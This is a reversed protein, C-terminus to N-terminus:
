RRARRDAPRPRRAPPNAAVYAPASPPRRDPHFRHPRCLRPGPRPRLRRCPRAVPPPRGSASRSGAPDADFRPRRDLGSGGDRRRDRAGLHSRDGARAAGVAHAGVSSTLRRTGCSRRSRWRANSFRSAGSRFSRASRGCRRRHMRSSNQAMAAATDAKFPLHGTLMRYLIVGVSYLDARGDVENGLVQEPAMYAPTGMM